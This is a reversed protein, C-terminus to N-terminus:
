VPDDQDAPQCPVGFEAVDWAALRHRSEGQGDIPRKHVLLAFPGHVENIDHRPPFQGFLHRLVEALSPKHSNFPPQLDSRVFRLISLLALHGLYHGVSHPKEIALPRRGGLGRGRLRRFHPRLGRSWLLVYGELSDCSPSIAFAQDHGDHCIALSSLTARAGAWAVCSYRKRHSPWM